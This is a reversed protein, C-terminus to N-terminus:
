ACPVASLFTNTHTGRSDARQVQQDLTRVATGAVSWASRIGPATAIGSSIADCRSGSAQEARTRAILAARQRLSSMSIQKAVTAATAALGLGGIAFIVIAVVVEVLTFGRSERM